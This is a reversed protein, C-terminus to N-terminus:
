GEYERYRKGCDTEDEATICNVYGDCVKEYSICFPAEDMLNLHEKCLYNGPCLM